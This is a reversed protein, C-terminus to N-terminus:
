SGPGAWGLELLPSSPQLRSPSPILSRIWAPDIAGRVAPLPFFMVGMVHDLRLIVTVTALVLIWGLITM